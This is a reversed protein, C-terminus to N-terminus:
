RAFPKIRPWAHLAFALAAGAEAARGLVLVWGPAALTGGLGALWVGANLLAFAAWVLTENGRGSGEHFRPLIWFAVGIALQVTWGIFACEIHLPLLRWVLPSLPVGKNFLLLQGATFGVALNILAARIFWCSLRSYV